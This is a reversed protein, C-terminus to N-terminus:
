EERLARLLHDGLPKVFYSLATRSGTTIYAEVPMGPVIQQGAVSFSENANLTVTASYYDAHSKPDRTVDSSVFSVKGFKEPTSRQNFATFRLRVIQGIHVQDIEIPPIRVEVTLVPDDPVILMVPEAPTIVGGITHVQLENVIGSRPARIELRALRDRHAIEREGLEAIRAEVNRLDRQADTRTTQDLNIIQIRIESIQGELRASQAVLNGHEGALRTQERELAYVRTAPTLKRQYLDRLDGLEKMIISLESSKANRQASVGEIEKQLQEIRLALQEKQSERTKKAAEFLQREGDIVPLVASEALLGEPFDISNDARSEAVLRALRARMEVLQTQVVALESKVQTSDLTLLVEGPGVRDGDKVNIAAVIGGDRHQIKKARGDVVVSGHSIVASSIEALAAWGGVGAVLVAVVFASFVVRGAIAYRRSRDASDFAVKKPTNDSNSTM